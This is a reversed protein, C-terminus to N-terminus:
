KVAKLAKIAENIASSWGNLDSGKKVGERSIRVPLQAIINAAEKFADERVTALLDTHVYEVDMETVRETGVHSLTCEAPDLAQGPQLWIREPAEQKVQTDHSM